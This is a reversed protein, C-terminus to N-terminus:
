FSQHITKKKERVTLRVSAPRDGSASLSNTVVDVEKFVKDEYMWVRPACLIDSLWMLTEANEYGSELSLFRESYAEYSRYGEATYFQKKDATITEGHTKTFTYYDLAGYPNVWCMRVSNRNRSKLEYRRIPVLKSNKEANVELHTYNELGGLGINKAENAIWDANLIFSLTEYLGALSFVSDHVHDGRTLFGYLFIIKSSSGIFSLEDIEGPALSHDFPSDSLLEYQIGAKVGPIFSRQGSALSGIRISSKALRGQPIYAANSARYHPTVSLRRKVYNSINVTYESQGRYRKIGLVDTSQEGVVSVEVVEDPVAETVKYVLDSFAGSYNAPTSSIKM